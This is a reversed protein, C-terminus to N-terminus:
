GVGQDAPGGVMKDAAATIGVDGFGGLQDAGFGIHQGADFIEGGGFAVQGDALAKDVIGGSM